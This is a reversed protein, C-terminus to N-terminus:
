CTKRNCIQFQNQISYIIAELIIENGYLRLEDDTYFDLIYKLSIL